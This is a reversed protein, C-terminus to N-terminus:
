AMGGMRSLILLKQIRFVHIQAKGAMGLCFLGGLGLVNMNGEGLPFTVGAM